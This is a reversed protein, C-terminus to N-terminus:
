GETRCTGSVCRFDADCGTRAWVRLSPLSSAVNMTKCQGTKWLWSNDPPLAAGAPLIGPWISQLQDTASKLRHRAHRPESTVCVCVCVCVCACM